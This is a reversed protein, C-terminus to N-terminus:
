SFKTLLFREVFGIVSGVDAPTIKNWNAHMAYDRIKPMTDLLTKQAGGVLGEAKLANVVEQMSKDSVDLGNMLGFRKLADELAACALVAAVDKAEEALAAKALAVFDGYIEGSILAQVKFAYGGEYDAKAALFIGKLHDVEYKWGGCKDYYTKFNEYHSSAEGFVARLLHQASTAWQQWSAAEYSASSGSGRVALSNLQTELEAFRKVILTDTAM